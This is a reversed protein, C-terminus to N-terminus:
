RAVTKFQGRAVTGGCFCNYREYKADECGLFSSAMYIPRPATKTMRSTNNSM